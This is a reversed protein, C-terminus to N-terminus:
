IFTMSSVTTLITGCSDDVREELNLIYVTLSKRQVQTQVLKMKILLM